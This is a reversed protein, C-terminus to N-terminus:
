LNTRNKPYFVPDFGSRFRGAQAPEPETELRKKKSKATKESLFRVSGFRIQEGRILNIQKLGVKCIV